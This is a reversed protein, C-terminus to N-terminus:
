RGFEIFFEGFGWIYKTIPGPHFSGCAFTKATFIIIKLRRQQHINWPGFTECENKYSQKILFSFTQTIKWVTRLSAIHMEAINGLKKLEILVAIFGL